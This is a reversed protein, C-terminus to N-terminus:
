VGFSFRSGTTCLVLAQPIERKATELFNPGSCHMPFVHDVDMTKLEAMISDLYPQPAPALHFGGILAHVKEIGTVARARRITNLLGGHGCSTVVVLGRDRLNFCTGHEHLHQDPLPQGGLEAPTFHHGAYQAPDCGLGDQQGFVVYSNPLVREQSVRPVAGTTFAHGEIVQPDESLMPRIRAAALAPRDLRGFTSFAGNGAAIMRQCFADEGGLYLRMDEKMRPRHRELFGDLGGFHDLHGHSLILADLTAPDLGLLELNNNLTEGTWGFDLLFRKQETGCMSTMWLSLGWESRLARRENRGGQGRVREIRVGPVQAGSIFIDHNGDTVVQITLSDVVPAAIRPTTAGAADRAFGVCALAASARVLDRRSIAIM